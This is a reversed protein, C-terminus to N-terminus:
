RGILYAKLLHYYMYLCVFCKDVLSVSTSKLIQKKCNVFYKNLKIVIRKERFNNTMNNKHRRYQARTEECFVIEGEMALRIWTHYEGYQAFDNNEPYGGVKVLKDKSIVLGVSPITNSKYLDNITKNTHTCHNSTNYIVGNEDILDYDCFVMVTNKQFNSIMKLCHDPKLIDDQGLVLIFDGSAHQLGRNVSKCFGVNIENKYVYTHNSENCINNVIEFSNDTSCDDIIIIEKTVNQNLASKITETIYEAGNFVPIIISIM